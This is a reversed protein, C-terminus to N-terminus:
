SENEYIKFKGLGFTTQKGIHVKECFRLIPIFPALEGEYSVSGTFGGMYMADKQRFSYRKWDTWFLSNNKIQITKALKMLEDYDYAPTNQSFYGFLTEIRRLASRLLIDFHLEPNKNLRNELKTRFPTEFLIDVV